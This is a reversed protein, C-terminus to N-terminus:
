DRVILSNGEPAPSLVRLHTDSLTNVQPGVLRLLLPAPYTLGMIFRRKVEWSAIACTNANFNGVPLFRVVPVAASGSSNLLTAAHFM